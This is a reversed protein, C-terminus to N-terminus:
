NEKKNQSIVEEILNFCKSILIDLDTNSAESETNVELWVPKKTEIRVKKQKGSKYTIFELKMLLTAKNINFTFCDTGEERIQYIPKNSSDYWLVQYVNASAQYDGDYLVQVSVDVTYDLDVLTELKNIIM